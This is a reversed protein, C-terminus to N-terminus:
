GEAHATREVRVLSKHQGAADGSVGIVEAGAKLFDEYSDRFGCAEKTCAPTEDKPCFYFFPKRAASSRSRSRKATRTAFSFVPAKDEVTVSTM